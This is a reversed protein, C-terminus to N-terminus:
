NNKEVVGRKKMEAVERKDDRRGGEIGPMLNRGKTSIVTPNLRFGAGRKIVEAVEKDDWGGWKDDRCGKRDDRYGRKTMGVVRKTM